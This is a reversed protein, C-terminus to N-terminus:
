SVDFYKMCTRLLHDYNGAMAETMFEDIKEKSWGLRRAVKRAKGLIAFANGDSGVLKLEPRRENEEM